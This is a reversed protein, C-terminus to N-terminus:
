GQQGEEANMGYVVVLERELQPDGIDAVYLQGDELNVAQVSEPQASFTITGVSEGAEDLLQVEGPADERSVFLRGSDEDWAMGAVAPGDGLDIDEALAITPVTTVALGLALAAALPRLKM